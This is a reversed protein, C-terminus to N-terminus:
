IVRCDGNVRNNNEDYVVIAGNEIKVYWNPTNPDTLDHRSGEIAESPLFNAVMFGNPFADGFGAYVVKRDGQSFVKVVGEIHCDPISLSSGGFGVAVPEGTQAVLITLQNLLAEFNTFTYPKGNLTVVCPTCTNVNPILANLNDSETQTANGTFILTDTDNGANIDGNITASTDITVTDDGGGAFIAADENDLINNTDGNVTANSVSISQTGISGGIGNDTGSVTGNTVTVNGLAVIGSDNTSTVNGSGQVTVNGLAVIGDDDNSVDFGNTDVTDDGTGTNVGDTDNATCVINDNGAGGDPCQAFATSTPLALWALAVIASILTTKLINHM